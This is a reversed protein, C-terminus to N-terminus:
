EGLGIQREVQESARGTQPSRSSIRGSLSPLHFLRVACATLNWVTEVAHAAAIRDDNSPADGNEALCNLVWVINEIISQVLTGLESDNRHGVFTKLHQGNAYAGHLLTKAQHKGAALADNWYITESVSTKPLPHAIVRDESLVARAAAVALRLDYLARAASHSRAKFNNTM